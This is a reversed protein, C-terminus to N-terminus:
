DELQEVQADDFVVISAPLGVNLLPCPNGVGRAVRAQLKEWHTTAAGFKNAVFNDTWADFDTIGREMAFRRVLKWLERQLSAGRTIIVGVSIAGEVHLRKFNTLDRDLFPDATVTESM